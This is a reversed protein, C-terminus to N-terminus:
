EETLNLKALRNRTRSEIMNKIHEATRPPKKCGKQGAKLAAVHEATLSRGRQSDGIKKSWEESKPKGRGSESMKRRTDEGPILGLCGGGGATCNYGLSSDQTGFLSILAIEYRDMEEKTTPNALVRITFNDPGHKRIANFLKTKKRYGKLAEAINHKFYRDLDEGSHQGIYKKGNVSNEILYIYV